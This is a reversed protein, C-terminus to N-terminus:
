PLARDLSLLNQNIVKYNADCHKLTSARHSIIIITLDSRIELLSQIINEETIPNLASTSQNLILVSAQKYLARAIGIRQLQGGSFRIGGEGVIIQVATL